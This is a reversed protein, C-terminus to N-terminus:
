APQGVSAHGPFRFSMRQLRSSQHMFRPNSQDALVMIPLPSLVKEASRRFGHASNEDFAGPLFPTEAMSSAQDAHFEVVNLRGLLALGVGHQEDM